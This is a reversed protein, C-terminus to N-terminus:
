FPNGVTLCVQEAAQMSKELAELDLMRKRSEYVLSALFTDGAGTTDLIEGDFKRLVSFQLEGLQYLAAGSAGFSFSLLKRSNKQIFEHWLHSLGDKLSIHIWEAKEIFEEFPEPNMLYDEGTSLDLLLHDEENIIPLIGRMYILNEAYLPMLFLGKPLEEKLEAPQSLIGPTFKGFKKEGDKELRIEQSPWDGEMAITRLDVRPLAPIESGKSIPLLWILDTPELKGRLFLYQHLGQGGWKPISKEEFHYVDSALEGLLIVKM